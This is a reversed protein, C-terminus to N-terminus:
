YCFQIEETIRIGRRMLRNGGKVIGLFLESTTIFVGVISNPGCIRHRHTSRQCGEWVRQAISAINRRPPSLRSSSPHIRLACKTNQTHVHHRPKEPHNASRKQHVCHGPLVRSCRGDRAAEEKARLGM